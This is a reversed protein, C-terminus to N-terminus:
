PVAATLADICAYGHSLDEAPYFISVENATLGTAANAISEAADGDIQLSAEGPSAWSMRVTHWGDALAHWAGRTANVGDPAYLELRIQKTKPDLEIRARRTNVDHARSQLVVFGFPASSADAINAVNVDFQLTVHDPADGNPVFNRAILARAGGGLELGSPGEHACRSTIRANEEEGRWGPLVDPDFKACNFLDRTRFPSQVQRYPQRAGGALREFVNHTITRVVPDTALARAWDQTAVNFVVGGAPNTYMGITGYGATAPVTALIEYNLPTADSGDVADPFGEANCNFLVGDTEDGAAQAGFTTGREVGSGAFAWHTPDVVTFPTRPLNDNTNVFGAHRFSAGFISNEPHLLPEAFWNVTVLAPDPEPDAAADKYVFLTRQQEELRAQWWMTNGAFVAIHGGAASYAEVNERAGRTWYESHGVFVVLDYHGLLTPDELDPDAAVEYDRHESKMWELFYKDWRPFRGLGDYDHYPRDYSVAYAREPSDSPYVNKGGFLNYAQYTNTAAVLLTKSTRGPQAARVVFFINRTGFQTPFRAAYYGSPWSMPIDLTATADWGCGSRYRGTCDQPPSTVDAITAVVDDADALNVVDVNFHQVSSAIRFTISGGQVVSAADAYGGETFEAITLIPVAPHRVARHRQASATLALVITCCLVLPRSHTM